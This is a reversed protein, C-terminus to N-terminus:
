ATPDRANHDALASKTSSLEQILHCAKGVMQHHKLLPSDSSLARYTLNKGTHIRGLKHAAIGTDDPLTFHQFAFCLPMQCSYGARTTVKPHPICPIRWAQLHPDSYQGPIDAEGQAAM